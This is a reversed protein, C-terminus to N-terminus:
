FRKHRKRAKDIIKKVWHSNALYIYFSYLGCITWILFIIIEYVAEFKTDYLESFGNQTTEFYISIAAILGFGFWISLISILILQTM